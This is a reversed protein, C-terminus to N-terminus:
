QTQKTSWVKTRPLIRQANRFRIKSLHFLSFIPGNRELSKPGGRVGDLSIMLSLATILVLSFQFMKRAWLHDNVAKFGKISLYLWASGLLAAGILYAYGTYGFATLLLAAVTFAIIYLVMHVKTVHIGKTIPLVPVSAATYEHIRYIAISFFHPM